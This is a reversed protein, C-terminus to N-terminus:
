IYVNSFMKKPKQWFIAFFSTKLWKPAGQVVEKWRYDIKQPAYKPM